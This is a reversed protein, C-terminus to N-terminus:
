LLSCSSTPKAALTRKADLEPKLSPCYDNVFKDIDEPKEICYNGGNRDSYYDLGFESKFFADVTDDVYGLTGSITIDLVLGKTQREEPTNTNFTLVRDTLDLRTVKISRSALKWKIKDQAEQMYTNARKTALEKAKDADQKNEAQQQAWFQARDGAMDIV